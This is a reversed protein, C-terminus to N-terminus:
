EVSGGFRQQWWRRLPGINARLPGTDTVGEVGYGSVHDDAVFTGLIRDFVIFVGGFNKDHHRAEISHHVRHYAPTNFLAGVIGLDGAYRSHMGFMIASHAIRAAIFVPLPVGALALLLDFPLQSVSAAVGLRLSVTLNYDRSQHHVEHLAWLLPIRHSAVHWLFYVFDYAVFACLWGALGVSKGVGHLLGFTAGYVGVTLAHSAITTVGRLAGCAINSASWRTHIREGHRLAALREFGMAALAM